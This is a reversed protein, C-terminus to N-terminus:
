NPLVFTDAPLEPDVEWPGYTETVTKDITRKVPLSTKEDIWLTVHCLKNTTGPGLAYFRIARTDRGDVKETGLSEFGSLKAPRLELPFPSAFHVSYLAGTRSFQLALNAAAKGAKDEPFHFSINGGGADVRLKVNKGDGVLTCNTGSPYSPVEEFIYTVRLRNGAAMIMEGKYKLPRDGKDTMQFALKIAKAGAIKQEMKEYLTKTAEDNVPIPFTFTGDPLKPDVEWARYIELASYENDGGITRQLPLSTEADIWIVCRCEENPHRPRTAKYFVCFAGRGNINYKGTMTFESVKIKPASEPNSLYNAALYAGSHALWARWVDAMKEPAPVNRLDDEGLEGRMLSKGDSVLAHEGLRKLGASIQYVLKARNGSALILTGKYTRPEEKADASGESFEFDLKCAAVKALKREMAQYVKQGQNEADLVQEVVAKTLNKGADNDVTISGPKDSRTTSETKGKCGFPVLLFLFLLALAKRRM